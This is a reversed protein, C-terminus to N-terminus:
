DKPLKRLGVLLMIASGFCLMGAIGLILSLWFNSVIAASIFAATAVVVLITMNRLLERKRPSFSPLKVPNEDM